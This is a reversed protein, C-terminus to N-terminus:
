KSKNFVSNSSELTFLLTYLSFTKAFWNGSGSGGGFFFAPESVERLVKECFIMGCNPHTGRRVKDVIAM